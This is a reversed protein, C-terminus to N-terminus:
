GARELAYVEKGARYRDLLEKQVEAMTMNSGYLGEASVGIREALRRKQDDEAYGFEMEFDVRGPRVLADDLSERRNTTMVIICGERSMIGDLCNLLGSLTVRNSTAVADRDPVTCDIDELIVMCGPRVDSMLRQLSEDNMGSGSLNLLYIDMELEGALAAALSTKGTGPLGHFLYGKHWPIGLDRYWSESSRFERMDSMAAEATGAPLVVTALPRMRSYGNSNWHGWSSFYLRIGETEETGFEVIEQILDRLAQGDGKGFCEFTYSEEKRFGIQREGPGSSGGTPQKAEGGKGIAIWVGDRRFFHRGSSPSFFVRLPPKKSPASGIPCPVNSDDHLSLRTTARLFRSRKFREQSDLWYTVYDFLPDNNEITVTRTFRSKCWGYMQGPTRRALAVLSGTFMLLLGGGVFQSHLQNTIFDPITM